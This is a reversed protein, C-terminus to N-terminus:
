PQITVPTGLHTQQYVEIGDERELAICGLTWDRPEIGGIHIGIGSGLRTDQPPIDGREAAEAIARRQDEDILGAALGREADEPLPYNLLMWVDGWHTPEPRMVRKVIRFTGEPTRGDDRQQKGELGGFGLAIPYTKLLREGSYFRLELDSKDVVLRARPIPNRRLGANRALEALPQAPTAEELRPDPQPVGSASRRVPPRGARSALFAALLILALALWVRRSAPPARRTLPQAEPQMDQLWERL